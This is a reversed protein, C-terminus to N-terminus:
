KQLEGLCSRLYAAIHTGLSETDLQKMESYIHSMKALMQNLLTEIQERKAASDLYEITLDLMRQLGAQGLLDNLNLEQAYTSLRQNMEDLKRGMMQLTLWESEITAAIEEILKALNSPLVGSNLLYGRREFGMKLAIYDFLRSFLVDEPMSAGIESGISRKTFMLAALNVLYVLTSSAPSEDGQHSLFFNQFSFSDSPDSTAEITIKM